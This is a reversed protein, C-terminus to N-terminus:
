LKIVRINLSFAHGLISNMEPDTEEAVRQLGAIREASTRGEFIM